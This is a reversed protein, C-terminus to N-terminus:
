QGKNVIISDFENLLAYNKSEKLKQQLNNLDNINVISNLKIFEQIKQNQSIAESVKSTEQINLKSLILIEKAKNYLEEDFNNIQLNQIENQVKKAAITTDQALGSIASVLTGANYYDVLDIIAQELPYSRVGQNKKSIIGLYIEGRNKNMQNILIPINNGQLLRKDISTNINNISTQMNSLTGSSIAITQLATTGSVLGIVGPVATQIVNVADSFSETASDAAANRLYIDDTFSWYNANILVVAKDIMQNRLVRAENLYDESSKGKQLDSSKGPQIIESCKKRKSNTSQNTNSVKDPSVGPNIDPANIDGNFDTQYVEGAAFMLCQYVFQQDALYGNIDTILKNQDDWKPQTVGDCGTLCIALTGMAAMLLKKM